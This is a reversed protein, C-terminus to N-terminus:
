LHTSGGYHLCQEGSFHTDVKIPSCLAIDWFAAMKMSAAMLVWFRMIQSTINAQRKTASSIYPFWFNRPAKHCRSYLCNVM